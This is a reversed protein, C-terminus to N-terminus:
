EEFSSQTEMLKNFKQEESDGCGCNDCCKASKTTEEMYKLREMLEYNEPDEIIEKIADNITKRPTGYDDPLSAEFNDLIAM